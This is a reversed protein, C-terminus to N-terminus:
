WASEFIKKFDGRGMQIKMNKMSRQTGVIALDALKETEDKEVGIDRLRSPLGLSKVFDNLRETDGWLRELEAMEQEYGNRKLYEFVYPLLLANATGHHTNYLITLAYGMGHVIITGTKNLAFGAILSALLLRERADLSDPEKKTQPIFELLIKLSERAFMKSIFDARKSLYSETAHSFADMGTAVVLHLPLSRLVEADLISLKPIIKESSVTKKTNQSRDIIVAFRTVESGTGCTTPIAIIPLPQNQYEVEGFYNRVSGRNTAVVAIAKGVDMASGGGVALIGDCGEKICLEAGKDVDETDPEPDAGPYSIYEIGEKSLVGTIKEFLGSKFIFSKGSVILVKKAYKKIEPLYKEIGGREFYVKTGTHFYISNM